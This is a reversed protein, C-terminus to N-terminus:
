ATEVQEHTEDAACPTPPWFVPLEDVAGLMTSFATWGGGTMRISVRAVWSPLLNSGTLVPKDLGEGASSRRSSRSSTMM